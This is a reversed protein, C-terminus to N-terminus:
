LLLLMTRSKVFTLPKATKGLIEISIDEPIARVLFHSISPGTSLHCSLHRSLTNARTLAPLRVQLIASARRKLV